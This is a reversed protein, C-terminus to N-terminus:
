PPRPLSSWSHPLPLSTPSLVVLPPSLPIHPSLGRTLFLSPHPLSSWSLPLFTPIHSHPGRSPSLSPHPPFSWSHPLPLSSPTLGVLSSSPPILPSSWLHPLSLSTPSLVVLTELPVLELGAQQALNHDLFNEETGSDLLASLPVKIENMWM